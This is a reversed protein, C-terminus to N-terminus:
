FKVFIPFVTRKESSITWNGRNKQPKPHQLLNPPGCAQGHKVWKKQRQAFRRRGIDGLTNYIEQPPNPVGIWQFLDAFFHSPHSFMDESSVVKIEHEPTAKRWEELVDAYCGLSRAAENNERFWEIGHMSRLMDVPNRVMMLFRLRPGLLNVFEDLEAHKRCFTGKRGNHHRWQSNSLGAMVIRRTFISTTCGLHWLACSSTSRKGAM